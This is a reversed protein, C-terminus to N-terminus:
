YVVNRDPIFIDQLSEWSVVKRSDDDIRKLYYEAIFMYKVDDSYLLEQDIEWYNEEDFGLLKPDGIFQGVTVIIGNNDKSNVIVAKCGPEIKM